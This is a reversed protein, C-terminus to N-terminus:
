ELALHDAYRSLEQGLVVSDRIVARTAPRLEEMLGLMEKGRNAIMEGYRVLGVVENIAYDLVDFEPHGSPQLAIEGYKRRAKDQEFAKRQALNEEPTMRREKVRRGLSFRAM